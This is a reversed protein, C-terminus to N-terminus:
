NHIFIKRQKNYVLVISDKYIEKIALGNESDGKHMKILVGNVKILALESNKGSKIFGYYKVDPWPIVISIHSTTNVKLKSLRTNKKSDTVVVSRTYIKNLFPDRPLPTLLFTDRKINFDVTKFESFKATINTDQILYNKVYRYGATGWLALVVIILVININKKM